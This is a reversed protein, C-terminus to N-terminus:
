ITQSFFSFQAYRGLMLIMYLEDHITSKRIMFYVRLFIFCLKIAEEPYM